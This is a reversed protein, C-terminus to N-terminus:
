VRCPMLVLQADGCSVKTAKIASDFEFKCVNNDSMLKSVKGILELYVGSFGICETPNTTDTFLRNYDPYRADITEIKLIGVVDGMKDIFEANDGDIICKTYTTPPKGIFKVIRKDGCGDVPAKFAVHGNTAVITDGDIYFGNLYYRIDKKGCCMLAAKLTNSNVTTKM